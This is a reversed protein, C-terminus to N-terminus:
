ILSEKFKDARFKIDDEGIQDFPNELHEQINDLGTFVMSFLVPQLYDVFLHHDEALLAFYPGLLVMVAYIFFKSYLRLTRPTRYQYIHKLTEFAMMYKNLYQNVRSVESGSLGRDRLNEITKSINSFEKYINEEDKSFTSKNESRFLTACLVFVSSLRLKFDEINKCSKEYDDRLWDRSAFYISRGMSKMIGYQLLANERRTYAGGISFVIPFVVAVGIVTLPFDIKFDNTICIYTSTVALIITIVTNLGLISFFRKFFTKM